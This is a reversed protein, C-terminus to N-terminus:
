TITTMMGLDNNRFLQNHKKDTSFLPSPPTKVQMNASKKDWDRGKTNECCCIASHRWCIASAIIFLSKALLTPWTSNYFM